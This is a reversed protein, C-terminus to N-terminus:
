LKCTNIYLDYMEHFQWINSDPLQPNWTIGYDVYIIPSQARPYRQNNPPPQTHPAPLNCPNSPQSPQFTPRTSQTSQTAPTPPNAPNSPQAPQSCEMAWPGHGRPRAQATIMLYSM